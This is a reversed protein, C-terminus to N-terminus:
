AKELPLPNENRKWMEFYKSNAGKQFEHYLSPLHQPQTEFRPSGWYSPKCGSDNKICKKELATVFGAEGVTFVV